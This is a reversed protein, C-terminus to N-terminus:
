PILVREIRFRHFPVRHGVRLNEHEGDQIHPPIAAEDREWNLRANPDAEQVLTQAYTQADPYTDFRGVESYVEHSGFPGPAYGVGDLIFVVDFDSM